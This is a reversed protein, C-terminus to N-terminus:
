FNMKERERPMKLVPKATKKKTKFVVADFKTSKKKTVAAHPHKRGEPESIPFPQFPHEEQEQALDVLDEAPEPLVHDVLDEVPQVLQGLDVLDEAPEPLVHGALVEALTLQAHKGAVVNEMRLVRGALVVRDMKDIIAAKNVVNIRGETPVHNLDALTAAEM